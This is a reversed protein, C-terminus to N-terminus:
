IKALNKSLIKDLTKAIKTIERASLFNFPRARSVYEGVQENTIGGKRRRKNPGWTVKRASNSKVRMSRLMQGTFTLNSKGPSTTADLKQTKRYEVYRKSLRKLRRQKAGTRKVGKGRRTREVILDIAENGLLKMSRKSTSVGIGKRLNRVLKNLDAKATM